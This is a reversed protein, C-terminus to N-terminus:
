QTGQDNEAVAQALAAGFTTARDERRPRDDPQRWGTDPPLPRAPEVATIPM